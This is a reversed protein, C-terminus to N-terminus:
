ALTYFVNRGKGKRKLLEKECLKLLERFATDKSVNLLNMCEKRTITRKKMLYEIIKRQRTNLEKLVEETVKHKRFTIVFSTGTEELIPEPLGWEKCWEMIKNTGTGVEEVYRAWFFTRAILPNRPISEHKQKLKEVTLGKPLTGPNWIEMRNDFIRIQINSPIEYDRHALGNALGERIAKPPYLWKEERQLKEEEIWAKKPIHSFIFDEAKKLQKLINGEITKFDLMDETVNTGNFRIAKIIAQLFFKQPNKAFLLVAANTPKRNRMLKLRTLIEKVALGKDLDLNRQKRAEGVFWEIKQKSIDSLSAEECVREDWHLKKKEEKALKRIESSTLEQM